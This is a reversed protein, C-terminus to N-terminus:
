PQINSAVIKKGFKSQLLDWFEPNGDDFGLAWMGVGGLGKEKAFDYKIALSRADDLYLMRWGDAEKYAKWGVQANEDWGEQEATIGTKASAYTEAHANDRANFKWYKKGRYWYSSYYGNDRDAKASPTVVPYDYGYWPLGLILKEKPMLKLFDDVATSVDYWYTGNKYGYLPATPVAKSSGTTGFDYAMMFIGDSSNALSPLDYLKQYKASAAYVSVTLYSGAIRSHMKDSLNKVFFSFNRRMDPGADGVYEFDVNVGDIGRKEVVSVVNEIAKKQAAEDQLFNEITKNDMQTITLVVRTGNDHAKEFLKTTTDSYFKVYGPAKDTFTGDTNIGFGFYALTTLVSFDVNYMKNLTWYPAFGFVEYSNKLQNHHLSTLQPSILKSVNRWFPFTLVLLLLFTLFFGIFLDFSFTKKSGRNVQKSFYYPQFM